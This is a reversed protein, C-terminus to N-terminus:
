EGHIRVTDDDVTAVASEDLRLCDVSDWCGTLLSGYGAVLEPCPRVFVADDIRVIRGVIEGAPTVVPKGEDAATLTGTM